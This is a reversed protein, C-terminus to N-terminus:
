LRECRFKGNSYILHLSFLYRTNDYKQSPTKVNYNADVNPMCAIASLVLDSAFIVHISVFGGFRHVLEMTTMPM